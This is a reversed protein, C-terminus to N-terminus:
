YTTHTQIHKLIHVYYVVQINHSIYFEGTTETSIKGRKLTTVDRVYIHRTQTWILTRTLAKLAKSKIHKLKSTHFHSILFTFFFDSLNSAFARFLLIFIMLSVVEFWKWSNWFLAPDEIATPFLTLWVAGSSGTDWGLWGRWEKKIISAINGSTGGEGGWSQHPVGRSRETRVRGIPRRTSIGHHTATSRVPYQCIATAQCQSATWQTSPSM